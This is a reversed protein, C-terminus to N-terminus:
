NVRSCTYSNVVWVGNLSDANGRSRCPEKADLKVIETNSKTVVGNETIETVCSCETKKSCSCITIAAILIIRKM